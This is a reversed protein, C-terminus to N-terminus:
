PQRGPTDSPSSVTVPLALQEAHADTLTQEAASLARGFRAVYGTWTMGRSRAASLVRARRAEVCVRCTRRGTLPDPPGLEHGRQCRGTRAAIAAPARGRLMNTRATVVQLHAPNVCATVRCLHDLVLEPPIDRGAAAVWAVRHANMLIGGLRIRGYGSDSRAGIWVHCGTAPDAAVKGTWAPSAVWARCAEPDLAIRSRRASM